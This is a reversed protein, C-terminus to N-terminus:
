SSLAAVAEAVTLHLGLAAIADGRLRSRPYGVLSRFRPWTRRQRRAEPQVGDFRLRHAV